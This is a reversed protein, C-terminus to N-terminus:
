RYKSKSGNQSRQAIDSMKLFSKIDNHLRFYFIAGQNEQSEAWIDGGHRIIIRYVISLGIGTGSFEENSHLRSFEKFLKDTYKPDFGVGNDKLYFTRKNGISKEGFEIISPSIKSTFKWANKILNELALQLLNKDGQVLMEPTITAEVRREPEHQKLQDVIKTALDSLNVTELILHHHSLRSLRLLSNIMQTMYDAANHIRLLHEAAADDMQEKHDQLLIKTFGDIRRLSGMLDHSVSHSFAKLEQNKENLLRNQTEIIEKQQQLKKNMDLLVKKSSDIEYITETLLSAKVHSLYSLCRMHLAKETLERNIVKIEGVHRSGVEVINESM